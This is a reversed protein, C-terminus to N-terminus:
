SDEARDRCKAQARNPAIFIAISCFLYTSDDLNEITCCCCKGVKCDRAYQRRKEVMEARKEADYRELEELKLANLRREEEIEQQKSTKGGSKNAVQWDLCKVTCANRENQISKEMRERCLRDEYIQRQIQVWMNEEDQEIQKLRRKEEIQQLQSMKSEELM